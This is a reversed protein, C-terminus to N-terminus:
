LTRLMNWLLRDAVPDVGLNNELRYTSFVLKGKGYKVTCLDAGFRPNRAKECGKINFHYGIPTGFVGGLTEAGEIKLSALPMVRSFRDDLIHGADLGDFVPHKKFYHYPGVFRPKSDLYQIPFGFVDTELDTPSCWCVYKGRDRLEQLKEDADSLCILPLEVFLATAGGRVQELVIPIRSDKLDDENEIPEVVYFGADTSSRSNNRDPLKTKFEIDNMAMWDQVKGKFDVLYFSPPDAKVSDSIKSGSTIRGSPISGSKEKLPSLVQNTYLATDLIKKDSYLTAKTIYMGEQGANRIVMTYIEQIGERAQIQLMDNRILKGDPGTVTLEMEMSGFIGADNVLYITVNFEGNRYVVREYTELVIRIKRNAEQAAYYALKPQFLPDLIGANCEYDNDHLQTYIYGALLQNSRLAEIMRRVSVAQVRQTERLADEYTPFV